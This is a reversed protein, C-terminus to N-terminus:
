GKAVKELFNIIRDQTVKTADGTHSVLDRYTQGLINVAEFLLLTNKLGVDVPTM